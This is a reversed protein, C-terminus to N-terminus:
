NQQKVETLFEVISRQDAKRPKKKLMEANTSPQFRPPRPKKPHAQRHEYCATADDGIRKVDAQKPLTSHANLWNIGRQKLEPDCMSAREWNCKGCRCRSQEKALHTAHGLLCAYEEEGYIITTSGLGQVRM